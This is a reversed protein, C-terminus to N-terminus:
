ETAADALSRWNIDCWDPRKQDPDFEVLLTGRRFPKVGDATVRTQTLVVDKLTPIDRLLQLDDDGVACGRLNLYKLPLGKLRRLGDATVYQGSLDLRELRKFGSLHVLDDDVALPGVLDLAARDRVRLM